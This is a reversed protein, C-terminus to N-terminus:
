IPLTKISAGTPLARWSPYCNTAQLDRRAVLGLILWRLARLRPSTAFQLHKAMQLSESSRALSHKQEDRYWLFLSESNDRSGQCLGGEYYWRPM